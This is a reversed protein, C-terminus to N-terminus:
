LCSHGNSQGIQDDFFKGNQSRPPLSIAVNIMVVMAAVVMMKSIMPGIHVLIAM